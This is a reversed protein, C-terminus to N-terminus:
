GFFTEDLIGGARMTVVKDALASTFSKDHSIILMGVQQSEKLRLLLKEFQLKRHRDLGKTPEDLILYGAGRSIVAALALRQKEGRSLTHSPADKLDEIDFLSLWHLASEIRVKEKIGEIEEIFCLEELPTPAFIQMEPKQWLYGIKKGIEGLSLAKTDEGDLFVAGKTPKYIGCLLKGVTSKGSGNPGTLFTIEGGYLTLNVPNLSFQETSKGYAYNANKAEIYGRNKM